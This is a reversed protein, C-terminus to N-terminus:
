DGLWDDLLAKLLDRLLPAKEQSEERLKSISIGAQSLECVHGIYWLELQEASVEPHFQLGLVHEGLSFAQNECVASRALNKASRPLEFTEGHWHLVEAECQVLTKLPSSGTFETKQLSSWGIEKQPMPFVASGFARAILQAGLCIGLVDRQAELQREILHLEKKLFPYDREDNVSIPGGLIALLDAKPLAEFNVTAADVYEVAYGREALQAELTGLHEFHVHRIALATKM